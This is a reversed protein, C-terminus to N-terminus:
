SGHDEFIPFCTSSLPKRINVQDCNVTIISTTSIVIIILSGHDEFIPFCNSSPTKLINVQDCNVKIISMILVPTLSLLPLWGGILSPTPTFTSLPPHWAVHHGKVAWRHYHCLSDSTSNPRNCHTIRRPWKITKDNQLTSSSQITM